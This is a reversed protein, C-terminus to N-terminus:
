HHHHSSSHGSFHFNDFHFHDFNNHFNFGGCGHHHSDDDENGFGFGGLGGFLGCGGFGGFGLNLGCGSYSFLGCGGLGFGGLGCGLGFFCDNVGLNGLGCGPVGGTTVPACTGLGSLSPSCAPTALCNLTKCNSDSAQCTALGCNNNSANCGPVQDMPMAGLLPADVISRAPAALAPVVRGAVSAARAATTATVAPLASTGAPFAYIFGDTGTTDGPAVDVAVVRSPATSNALASTFVGTAAVGGAGVVVVGALVALRGRVTM